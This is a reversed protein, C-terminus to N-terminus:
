REGGPKWLLDGDPENARRALIFLLDSLRNLYQAALPNVTDGHAEIAEWASREARRVATRAVHLLAAGPTGGPLVFSRLVPLGENFADCAQELATVYSEEVRLPQYAPNPTIPNCLDAGVDFMENQIRTLLAAVPGDLNGLALATGIACNAEDVDAYAV